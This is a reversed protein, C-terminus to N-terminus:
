NYITFVKNWILKIFLLLAILYICTFLMSKSVLFHIGALIGVVLMSKFVIVINSASNANRYDSSFPLEKENFKFTIMSTIIISAFVVALHIIVNGGFIIIFGISMAIFIPLILKYISSKFMGSYINKKDKIPLIDYIWAAEYQNSFKITTIISQSILVCLYAMFYYSSERMSIIYNVIGEGDYTSLMMVFPMFAGIALSPYIKTKFDRDKSLMSHVFDFFIKEEQNKCLIKSIKFSMSEKTKTNKYTNDSLKQLNYEFSPVLKIYIIISVIPIVISLISMIKIIINVETGTILNFNAGFWMPPILINWLKPEYIFKLDVFTFARGVFQYGITIVLLFLIQFANLMDKLKEGSFLKLIVFYMIATVIIMLIDIFLISVLFLLLFKVGYRISAIFGGGCIALSLLSIYIFIHTIKAANLTKNDVGKTAIIDKDNIDLIVSSFDSIFVSLIMIMFFSFYLSMKIIPNIDMVILPATCLGTIAYVILSKYFYNKDKVERDSNVTNPIRRSDIVLKSQIILRMIEYNIGFRKYIGKFLDLINLIYFEKM